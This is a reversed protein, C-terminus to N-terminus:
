MTINIRIQWQFSEFHIIDSNRQKSIGRILAFRTRGAIINWSGDRKFGEGSVVCQSCELVWLAGVWVGVQVAALLWDCVCM